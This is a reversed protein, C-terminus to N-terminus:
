VTVALLKEMNKPANVFNLIAVKAEEHRYTQRGTQGDVHLLETRVARIKM